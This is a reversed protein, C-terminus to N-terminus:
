NLDTSLAVVVGSQFRVQYDEYFKVPLTEPDVSRVRLTAILWRGERRLRDYRERELRTTWETVQPGATRGGDPPPQAARIIEDPTDFLSDLAVFNEDLFYLQVTADAPFTNEARTRVDVWRVDEEDPWELATTDREEYFFIRGDLPLTVESRVRIRSTDAVFPVSGAARPLTNATAVFLVRNPAPDLVDRVNSNDRDLVVSTLAPPAGPTAAGGVRVSSLADVGSGLLQADEGRNTRLGVNTVNVETDLGFSNFLDFRVEPNEFLIRGAFRREFLRIRVTDRTRDFLSLTGVDGELRRFALDSLSVDLQLDDRAAIPNGLSTLTLGVEVPFRNPADASGLGLDADRLSLLTDVVVPREGRFPLDLQLAFPAGDRRLSPLYVRIQVDHRFASAARVRLTGAKLLVRTISPGGAAPTREWTFPLTAAASDQLVEGAAPTAAAPGPVVVALAQDPIPLLAEATSSFEETLYRLTVFGDADTNIEVNGGRRRLVEGLQSRLDLLPAALEPEWPAIVLEDTPLCGILGFLLLLATPRRPSAVQKM